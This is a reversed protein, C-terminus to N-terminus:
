LLYKPGYLQSSSSAVDVNVLLVLFRGVLRDLSAENWDLVRYLQMIVFTRPVYVLLIPSQRYLSHLSYGLLNYILPM